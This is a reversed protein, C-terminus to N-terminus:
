VNLAMGNNCLIRSIYSGKTHEMQSSEDDQRPQNDDSQMVKVESHITPVTYRFDLYVYIM